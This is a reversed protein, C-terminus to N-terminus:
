RAGVAGDMKLAEHHAFTRLDKTIPSFVLYTLAITKLQPIKLLSAKLDNTTLMRLHFQRSYNM